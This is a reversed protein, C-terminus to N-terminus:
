QRVLGAPTHRKADPPHIYLPSAPANTPDLSSAFVAVEALDAEADTAVLDFRSEDDTAALIRKAGTGALMRVSSPIAGAAEAPVLAIAPVVIEAGTMVQLVVTGRRTDLAIAVPTKGDPAVAAYLADFVTVGVVACDTALGFGRAAAIGVRLGTFSGPGTLVAIRDIASWPLGADSMTKEVMPLLAEAHGRDMDACAEAITVVHDGNAECLAVACRPGATDLVLVRM